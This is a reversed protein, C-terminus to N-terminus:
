KGTKIVELFLNRVANADCDTAVEVLPREGDGTLVTQGAKVGDEVVTLRTPEFTFFDPNIISIVASPDHMQCGDIGVSKKYFSFYYQAAENLFNGLIPSNAALSAFEGPTCIIKGTVDLGIMRMPWSAGFVIDAAHPDQWINAEAHATVNGGARLSGGMVTVSKVKDVITPDHQLAKAINTLPGVPCLTIEGPHQNIMRCIFEHAPEDLAQKDPSFAPIDGFGERGHVEWAVEKQGQILPKEAGHAVPVDVGMMETLALANRTAIKTTVNGFISTLGVLEISPELHAFNIAMADDIGPDTDIIVRQKQM